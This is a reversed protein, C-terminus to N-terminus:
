ARPEEEDALAALLPAVGGNGAFEDFALLGSPAAEPPANLESVNHLTKNISRTRTGIDNLSNQVTSVNREVKNMLLEFKGFETKVAGLVKWVEDGKRELAVLHFGMRFSMLIAALTSPGAITVHFNQQIDAQLGARRTVESYLAETPLFMIAQPLTTPESIYKDSIKKCQIRIAKEFANGARILEEGGVEYAKELRDWDEHPFKSDMPLLPTARGQPVKLAFEVREGSDPKIAVNKEYQERSFMQELIMGLQIEGVGGRSKVNSFVRKLDSVGTALEKMEGLGAHVKTLQDSVAGFSTTLRENLTSQLKEDVVVRMEDLKAANDTNLTRLGAEVTARLKEGAERQEIRSREGAERQEASMVRLVRHLAEQSELNSKSAEAFFTNLREGITQFDRVVAERLKDASATNDARFAALSDNLTKSLATISGSIEERLARNALEAAARNDQATKAQEYRLESVNNRLAADTADLKTSLGIMADPLGQVRPDTGAPAAAKRMLLAVVLVILLVQLAIVALLM